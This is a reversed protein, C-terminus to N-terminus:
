SEAYPSGTRRNILHLPLILFLILASGVVLRSRGKIVTKINM